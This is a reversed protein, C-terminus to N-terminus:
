GKDLEEQETMANAGRKARKGLKKAGQPKQQGSRKKIGTLECRRGEKMFSITFKNLDITIPGFQKMWDLGLVLDYTILDLIKMDAKFPEEGMTWLFNPCM